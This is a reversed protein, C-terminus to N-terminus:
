NRISMKSIKNILSVVEKLNKIIGEPQVIELVKKDWANWETELDHNLWIIKMGCGKAGVLDDSIEDSIFISERPKVSFEKIAAYFIRADPKRVEIESSVFLGDFLKEIGYKKLVQEIWEQVNNSILGVKYNNKLEKVVEINEQPILHSELNLQIIKELNFDDRQLLRQCWKSMEEDTKIRGLSRLYYLDRWYPYFSEWDLGFLKLLDEAEKKQREGFSSVFTNGWDFFLAKIM